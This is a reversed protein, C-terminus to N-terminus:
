LFYQHGSIWVWFNCPSEHDRLNGIWSFPASIYQYRHLIAYNCRFTFNYIATMICAHPAVMAFNEM